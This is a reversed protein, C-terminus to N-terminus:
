ARSGGPPALEKYFLVADHPTVGDTDLAFRPITGAHTWGMSRYLREAPAGRRADLTLLTFGARRAAEEVNEM